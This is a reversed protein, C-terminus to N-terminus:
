RRVSVMRDQMHQYITLGSGIGNRIDNEVMASAAAIISMEQNYARTRKIVAEPQWCTYGEGYKKLSEESDQQQYYFDYLLRMDSESYEETCFPYKADMSETEHVRTVPHMFNHTKHRHRIEMNTM